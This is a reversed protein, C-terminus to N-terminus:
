IREMKPYFVSLNERLIDYVQFANHLVRKLIEDSPYVDPERLFPEEMLNHSINVIM